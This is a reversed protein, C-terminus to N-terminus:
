FSFADFLLPCKLSLKRVLFFIAGLIFQIRNISSVPGRLTRKFGAFELTISRWCPDQDDIVQQERLFGMWGLPNFSPLEDLDVISM